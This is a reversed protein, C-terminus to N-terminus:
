FNTVPEPTWSATFGPQGSKIAVCLGSQFPMSVQIPAGDFARVFNTQGSAVTVGAPVSWTPPILGVIKHGSLAFPGGSTAPSGDYFIVGQGSQLNQHQLLYDLRGYGSQLLYDGPGTFLSLMGGGGSMGGSFCTNTTFGGWTNKQPKMGTPLPM